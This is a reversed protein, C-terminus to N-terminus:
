CDNLERWHNASDAAGARIRITTASDRMLCASHLGIWLLGYEYGDLRGEGHVVGSELVLLRPAELRYIQDGLVMAATGSLAICLETVSHAHPQHTPHLQAAAPEIPPLSGWGRSSTLVVGDVDLSAVAKIAWNLWEAANAKPLTAWISEKPNKMASM